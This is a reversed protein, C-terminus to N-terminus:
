ESQSQKWIKVIREEDGTFRGCCDCFHGLVDQSIEERCYKDAYDEVFWTLGLLISPDIQFLLAIKKLQESGPCQGKESGSREWRLIQQYSVGLKRAVQEKAMPRDKVIPSYPRHLRLQRLVGGDFGFGNVDVLVKRSSM